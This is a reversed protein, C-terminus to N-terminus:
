AGMFNKIVEDITLILIKNKGIYIKKKRSPLNTILIGQNHNLDILYKNLQKIESLSIPKSIFNKIEIIFKQNNKYFIADAIGRKTKIYRKVKGFEKLIKIINDEFKKANHKIEKKAAGYIKRREKPYKIGALKYAEKIGGKFIEQVHTNCKKNIEWQTASPNEKIYNIIINQKKLTRKFHGNIYKIGAKKYIEQMNNFLKNVNLKLDKNIDEISALPNKKIYNIVEKIRDQKNRLIKTYYKRPYKVGAKKYANLITGFTRPIEAKLDRRIDLTTAQNNKKIYQIIQKKIEEKTRKLLHKPFPVNAELFAKKIGKPFVRELKIKTDKRIKRYTANPNKRIYELLESKKEELNKYFM